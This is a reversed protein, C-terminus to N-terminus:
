LCAIMNYYYLSIYLPCSGTNLRMFHVMRAKWIQMSFDYIINDIRKLLPHFSTFLDNDDLKLLNDVATKTLWNKVVWKTIWYVRESSFLWLDSSEEGLLLCPSHIPKGSPKAYVGDCRLETWHSAL